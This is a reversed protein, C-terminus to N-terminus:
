AAPATGVFAYTITGQYSGAGQNADAYAIYKPTITVGSTTQDGAGTGVGDKSAVIVFNAANIPNTSFEDAGSTLDVGADDGTLAFKASWVSTTQSGSTYTGHPISYGGASASLATATAQLSWGAATNCTVTMVSGTGENSAASNNISGLNVTKSGSDAEMKCSENVTLQVTDIISSQQAAFVGVVPMAALAVSAAGAAIISKKM